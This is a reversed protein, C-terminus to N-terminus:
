WLGNEILVSGENERKILEWAIKRQELPSSELLHAIEAPHLANLMRQLTFLSGSEIAGTLSALRDEKSLNDPTGM